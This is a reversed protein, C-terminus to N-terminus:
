NLRYAEVGSEDLKFTYQFEESLIQELKEQDLNGEGVYITKAESHSGAPLYITGSSFDVAYAILGPIIFFIIGIADLAVVSVDIRNSDGVHQGRREPHMFYGCAATQLLITAVLLYSCLKKIM